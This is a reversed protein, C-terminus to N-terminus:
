AQHQEAALLLGADGAARSQAYLIDTGDIQEEHLRAVTRRGIPSPPATM